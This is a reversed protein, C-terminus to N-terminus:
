RAEAYRVLGGAAPLDPFLGAGVAAMLAAGYAAEERHRPLRLPLGFEDAVCRALVVNERLGNGAGVLQKKGGGGLRSIAEYGTRFARAMGELLARTMNAPTFNEASVGTWSARLEPQHRTGTFFPECVLGGAGRPASEALRNMAAYLTEGPATGCVQESVQRYFRELLAYSRGGCLGACALLYGGGPFPRTELAPDFGFSDAYVSVQGGTGVNVLVSDGRDAVSGLFSAQNDGIGGFVSLGEPLGTADAMSATVTGLPTGSPQVEPFFSPPLGLAAILDADWTGAKVDFVGSSGACTADTVPATGTLLAGFYDMLFCTTGAAPLVGNTRMWFLTVAGFGAALRCGTRQPADAGARRIAEQVYTLTGGPYTEEGRRDQWNVLPTLPRLDDVVVVGHQQGTIGLGGLRSWGAGLRRTVERLCGCAMEAIAGADWESRGRAKDAPSTIEAANPVTSTALIDRTQVDLALATITTTGLDIGIVVSM